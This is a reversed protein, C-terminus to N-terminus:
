DNVSRHSLNKPSGRSMLLGGDDENVRKLTNEGERAQLELLLRELEELDDIDFRNLLKQLQKIGQIFAYFKSRLRKGETMAGDEEM